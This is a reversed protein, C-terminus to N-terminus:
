MGRAAQRARRKETRCKRCYRRGSPGIITNAPTFEHGHVCYPHNADWRERQQARECTRCQREGRRTRTNEPTYEHGQPCHTKRANRAWPNDSHLPTEPHRRLALHAPNICLRHKCTRIVDHGDPIPGINLTYSLRHAQLVVGLYGVSPYGKSQVAAKWMWCGNAWVNYKGELPDPQSM